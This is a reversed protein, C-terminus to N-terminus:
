DTIQAITNIHSKGKGVAQKEKNYFSSKDM